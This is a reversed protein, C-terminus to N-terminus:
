CHEIFRPVPIVWSLLTHRQSVAAAKRQQDRKLRRHVLAADQSEANYVPEVPRNLANTVGIRALM